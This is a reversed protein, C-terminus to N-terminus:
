KIIRIKFDSDDEFAYRSKLIFDENLRYEFGDFTIEGCTDGCSYIVFMDGMEFTAYLTGSVGILQFSTIYDVPIILFMYVSDEGLNVQPKGYLHHTDGTRSFFIYSFDDGNIEDFRSKFDEGDRYGGSTCGVLAILFLSSLFISLVKKM